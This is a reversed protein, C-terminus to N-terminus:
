SPNPPKPTEKHPLNPALYGSYPYRALFFHLPNPSHRSQKASAAFMCVRVYPAVVYGTSIVNYKNILPM